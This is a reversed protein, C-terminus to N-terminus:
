LDKLEEEYDKIKRKAEEIKRKAEAIEQEAKKEKKAKLKALMKAEEERFWKEEMTQGRKEAVRGTRAQTKAQPKSSKDLLTSTSSFNRTARKLIARSLM